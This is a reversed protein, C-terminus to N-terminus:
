PALTEQGIPSGSVSAKVRRQVESVDYSRSARVHMLVIGASAFADDLFADRTKRDEADHSSDDLEVALLPAVSARDCLLFDVHKAIIRNLHGQREDVGKTVHLIDAVRVKAFVYYDHEVAQNLVGFFSREAPSLLYKRREYPLLRKPTRRLVAMALVVIVLVVFGVAVGIIVLTM